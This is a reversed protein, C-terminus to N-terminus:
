ECNRIKGSGFLWPITFGSGFCGTPPRRKMRRRWRFTRWRASSPRAPPTFCRRTHTRDYIFFKENQYRACFHSRLIPLVRNKPEIESGLIGGLDSFRLFGKLLHAEGNLHRVATAVPHLTEDSFNRLFSPGERLLKVVLRYLRIERDEMCTLFGRRVLEEGYPSLKHLKRLVRGAHGSDTQIARVPFLIPASDEDDTIATLVEKNAYSDFICCLFGEFSGDYTYIMENM